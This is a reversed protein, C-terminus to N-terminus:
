SSVQNNWDEEITIGGSFVSTAGSQGNIEFAMGWIEGASINWDSPAHFFRENDAIAADEKVTWVTGVDVWNGAADFNGSGNWKKCYIKYNDGSGIGCSVAFQLKIKTISLNTMATMTFGVTPSTIGAGVVSQIYHSGIPFFYETGDAQGSILYSFIKESKFVKAHVSNSSSLYGEAQINGSATIHSTVKMNGGVTLKPSSTSLSSEGIGVQGDHFVSILENSSNDAIAFQSSNTLMGTFFSYSGRNREYKMKAGFGTQGQLILKEDNSKNEILLNQDSSGTVLMSGHVDLTRTPSTTGIGVKSGSIVMVDANGKSDFNITGATNNITTGLSAAQKWENYKLFNNAGGGTGDIFRIATDAFNDLHIDTSATIGGNLLLDGSASIDGNVTLKKPVNTTGIGVNGNIPNLLFTGNDITQIRSQELKSNGVFLKTIPSNLGITNIYLNNWAQTPSGLNFGLSALPVLSSSVGETTSDGVVLNTFSGTGASIESGMSGSINGSATIHTTVQLGNKVKFDKSM